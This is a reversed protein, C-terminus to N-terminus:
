MLLRVAETSRSGESKDVHGSTEWKVIRLDLVFISYLVPVLLLTIFTAVVLAAVFDLTGNCRLVNHPVREVGQRKGKRDVRTRNRDSNGQPRVRGLRPAATKSEGKRGCNDSEHQQGERYEQGVCKGVAYLRQEAWQCHSHYHSQRGKQQDADSKLDHPIAHAGKEMQSSFVNPSLGNTARSDLWWRQWLKEAPLRPTM